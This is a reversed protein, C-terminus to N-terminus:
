PLTQEWSVAAGRPEVVELMGRAHGVCPGGCQARAQLRSAGRSGQALAPTHLQTETPRGLSLSPLVGCERGRLRSHRM